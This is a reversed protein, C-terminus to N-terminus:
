GVQVRDYSPDSREGLYEVWATKACAYHTAAEVLDLFNSVTTAFRERLLPDALEGDDSFSTHAQALSFMDPYVRAGLHELPIRLAWLGRNGGAMSPSASMVLAQRENFPQPRFRSTWDILNKLGGPMSANYEPAVIVFAQANELREKFRVAGPPVGDAQEADGDYAPVEFDATTAFDVTAGNAEVARAALRALKLNWSGSRASASLVLLSLGRGGPVRTPPAPPVPEPM